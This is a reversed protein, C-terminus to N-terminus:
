YNIILSLNNIYTTNIYKKQTFIMRTYTENVMIEGM